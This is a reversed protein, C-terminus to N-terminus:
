SKQFIDLGPSILSKDWFRSRECDVLYITDGSACTFGSVM